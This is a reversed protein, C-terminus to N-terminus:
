DTVEFSKKRGGIMVTGEGVVTKKRQKPPMAVLEDLGDQIFMALKALAGTDTPMDLATAVGLCSQMVDRKERKTTPENYKWASALPIIAARGLIAPRYIFMAPKEKGDDDACYIYERKLKGIMNIDIM